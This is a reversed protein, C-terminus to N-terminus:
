LELLAQEVVESLAPHIYLVDRGVEDVTNGLCMAQILPQILLSAEPGMIHAGLLRRSDPDALVKVVSTTDELAWGYAASSYERVAAIYPLGRVQAQPETLGVTAVQPDAFVAAPVVDFSATKPEDPHLLNHRVLRTEANAMHKLQVHNALDGLAYVGEVTTRCAADTLVHGHDDVAVGAAEVGLRDSNPVRGTAVLVVEASVTRTSGDGSRVTAMAGAASPELREVHSDLLLDFRSRYASTFRDSIEPDHNALLARGRQVITVQTGLAGFVHSMEAAISGGGIVLMSTPLRELRMITDSTHVAVTAIGPIDPIRPRSGAALVFRDSRVERGDVSLVGPALFRADGLLVDIGTSQRFHVAREHIPDIRGFVRERIAPWDIEDVHAHVGFRESDRVARAVDATHVFMKSPICGRNLCTGGFRDNEVVAIRWDAMTEDPLMNGSGAGVIVLDYEDPEMTREEDEAHRRDAPARHPVRLVRNVSTRRGGVLSALVQQSLHVRGREAERVLLSALQATLAGALLDVLRAQVEAMRLAVSVMWRQSLQPREELIRWLTVSDITLVVSDELAKADFPLAMRAMLPIDGFVDGPHLVQLTVRRGHVDRSLEISGQRVIHVLRPLAGMEFLLSGAPQRDEGLETALADVDEPGLPALEGRGLCRAIWAAHRVPATEM